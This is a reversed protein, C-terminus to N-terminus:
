KIIYELDSGARSGNISVTIKKANIDKKVTLYNMNHYWGTDDIKHRNKKKVEM